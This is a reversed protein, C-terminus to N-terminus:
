NDTMSRIISVYGNVAPKRIYYLYIRLAPFRLNKQPNEYLIKQPNSRSFHRLNTMLNNPLELYNAVRGKEKERMPAVSTVDGWFMRAYARSAGGWVGKLCLVEVFNGQRTKRARKASQPFRFCDSLCCYTRNMLVYFFFLFCTVFFTYRAGRMSTHGTLVSFGNSAPDTEPLWLSASSSSVNFALGPKRSSPSSGHLICDM